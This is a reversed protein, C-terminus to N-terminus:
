LVEVFNTRKVGVLIFDELGQKMYYYTKNTADEISNAFVGVVYKQEKENGNDDVFITVITSLYIENDEGTDENVFENINSQKIAVVDCQNNYYGLVKSEAEAFFVANDVIFREKVEKDNGRENIVVRTCTVEYFM